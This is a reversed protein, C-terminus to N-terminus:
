GHRLADVSAPLAARGAAEARGSDPEAASPLQGGSLRYVQQLRGADATALRATAEATGVDAQAAARAAAGPDIRDPLTASDITALGSRQSGVDMQSTPQSTATASVTVTLNGREITESADRVAVNGGSFLRVGLWGLLVVVVAILGWTLWRRSRPPRKVGLFADLEGAPDSQDM